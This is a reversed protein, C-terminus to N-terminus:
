SGCGRPRRARSPTRRGAQTRDDPCAIHHPEHQELRQAAGAPPAQHQAHEGESNIRQEGACRPEARELAVLRGEVLRDGVVNKRGLAQEADRDLGEGVHHDAEQHEAGGQHHGAGALEEDIEGERQAAREAAARCLDADEGRAQEAHHRAADDAVHQGGAGHRDRGHLPGAEGGGIGAGDLGAGRGAGHQRRRHHAGGGEHHRLEDARGVGFHGSAAMM